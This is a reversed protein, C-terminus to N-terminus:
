SFTLTCEPSHHAFDFLLAVDVVMTGSVSILARAVRGSAPALIHPLFREFLLEIFQEPPQLKVVLHEFPHALRQAGAVCMLTTFMLLSDKAMLGFALPEVLTNKGHVDV